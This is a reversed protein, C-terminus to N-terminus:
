SRVSDTLTSLWEEDSPRKRRLPTSRRQRSYAAPRVVKRGRDRGKKAVVVVLVVLVVCMVFVLALLLYLAIPVQVASAPVPTATNLQTPMSNSNSNSNSNFNFNPNASGGFGVLRALIQLLQLQRELDAAQSSSTALSANMSPDSFPLDPHDGQLQATMAKMRLMNFMQSENKTLGPLASSTTTHPTANQVESRQVRGHATPSVHTMNFVTADDLNHQGPYPSPAQFM